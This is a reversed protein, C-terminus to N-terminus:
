RWVTREDGSLSLNFYMIKTGRSGRRLGPHWIRLLDEVDEKFESGSRLEPVNRRVAELVDDRLVSGERRLGAGSDAWRCLADLCRARQEAKEPSAFLEMLSSRRAEVSIDVVLAIGCLLFAWTLADSASGLAVVLCRALILAGVAFCLLAVCLGATREQEPVLDKFTLGLAARLDTGLEFWWVPLV